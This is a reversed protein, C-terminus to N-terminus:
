MAACPSVAQLLSERWGELLKPTATQTPGHVAAAGVRTRMDRTADFVDVSAAGASSAVAPV